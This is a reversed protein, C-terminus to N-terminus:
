HHVLPTGTAVKGNTDAIQPLYDEDTEPSAYEYPGRRVIPIKDFNGHPAPSSTTWELTNSHWPNDGAKKGWFLSYFFNALFIIQTAGLM